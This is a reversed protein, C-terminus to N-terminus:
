MQMTLLPKGSQGHVKNVMLTKPWRIWSSSGKWLRLCSNRPCAVQMSALNSWVARLLQRVVNEYWYTHFSWLYDWVENYCKPRWCSAAQQNAKQWYYGAPPVRDIPRKNTWRWCTSHYLWYRTHIYCLFTRVVPHISIKEPLILCVQALGWM